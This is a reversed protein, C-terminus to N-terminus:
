GISGAFGNSFSIAAFASTSFDPTEAFFDAVVAKNTNEWTGRHLATCTMNPPFYLYISLYIPLCVPPRLPRHLYCATALRGIGYVVLYPVILAWTGLQADSLVFFAFGALALCAGGVTMVLPKGFKNAAWAAPIAMSAGTAVIVASLLGVYTTGLSDSDAIVTGLVYYPVFSSAFGFAM